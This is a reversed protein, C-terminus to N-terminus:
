EMVVRQNRSAKGTAWVDGYTLRTVLMSAILDDLANLLTAAPDILVSIVAILPLSEPPFGFVSLILTEGMLGGSPIAGMVVGVLVSVVIIALLRGITHDQHVVGFLFLIKLVGGIVSGDKHLTTGAPIVLDRVSLPIRMAPAVELTVPMTALSSCTGIATLSPRLANSWFRRVAPLRGSAYAYLTFGGFFYFTSFVYYIWFVKVYAAALHQGTDVVTCAFYSLLGLPAVYMAYDVLRLCVSAGSSLFRSMAMGKRGLQTTALGFAVSFVILPM